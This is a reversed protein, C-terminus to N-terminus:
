KGLSFCGIQIHKYVFAIIHIQMFIAVRLREHIHQTVFMAVTDNDKNMGPWSNEVLKRNAESKVGFRYVLRKPHVHYVIVHM